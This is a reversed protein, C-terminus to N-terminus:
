DLRQFIRLPVDVPAHSGEIVVRVTGQIIPADARASSLSVRIKTQASEDTPILNVDVGDPGRFSVSSMAPLKPSTSRIVIEKSEGVALDAIFLSKRLGDQRNAIKARVSVNLEPESPNATVFRLEFEGDEHDFRSGDLIVALKVSPGNRGDLIKSEVAPCDSKVSKLDVDSGDYRGLLVTRRKTEGASVKGFDIVEPVSFLEPTPLLTGSIYLPLPTHKEDDTFVVWVQKQFPGPKGAVATKIRINVTGNPAIQQDFEGVVMCGCSTKVESVSVPQDSRNEIVFTHEVDVGGTPDIVGFDWVPEESMVTRATDPGASITEFSCGVLLATFGVLWPGVLWRASRHLAESRM